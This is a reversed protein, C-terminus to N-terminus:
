IDEQNLYEERERIREEEKKFYRLSAGVELDVSECEGFHNIRDPNVYTSGSTIINEDEDEITYKFRYEM